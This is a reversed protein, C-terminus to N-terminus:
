TQSPGRQYCRMTPSSPTSRYETQHQHKNNKSWWQSSETTVDGCTNKCIQRLLILPEEFHESNSLLIVFPPRIRSMPLRTWYQHTLSARLRSLRLWAPRTALYWNATWEFKDDDIFNMCTTSHLPLNLSNADKWELKRIHSRKIARDCICALNQNATDANASRSHSCM